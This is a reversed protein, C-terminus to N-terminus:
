VKFEEARVSNMKKLIEVGEILRKKCAAIIERDEDFEFMMLLIELSSVVEQQNDGFQVNNIDRLKNLKEVNAEM